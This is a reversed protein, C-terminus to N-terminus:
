PFAPKPFEPRASSSSIPYVPILVGKQWQSLYAQALINQGTADFKVPGQVCHFTTNSHLEAILKTNNFSKINTVAQAVVQGVSYAEATDAAIDNATGGYKAIYAKVMESNGPINEQPYWGNPVFIGEASASGGIANLFTEGQDPGATAIVLRPNYHLQKFRNLIANNAIPLTGLVAVQAGSAIVADAIPTYNTTQSPFVQYSVTKIGSQELLLKALDIQPQTFPDDDTAYAVTTPRLKTPLSLLFQTFSILNNTVPLSVDFINHLNRNFVSPGGGSGEVMADGYQNAVLSAPKTLATSFPGFVLDVKDVTILKQYNTLVQEPTSDDPAIDLTVKRGLLGGKANITDAWLQYGQDIAKGDPAFDGTFSLSAGIKIPQTQQGEGGTTSLSSGCATTITVLLSLTALLRFGKKYSHVFQELM